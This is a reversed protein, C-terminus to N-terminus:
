KLMRLLQDVSIALPRLIVKKLTGKKIERHNPIIVVRGDVHRMKIHSGKQLVTSFGLKKFAKVLDSGSVVPLKPM